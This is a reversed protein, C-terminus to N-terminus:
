ESEADIGVEGQVPSPQSRNDDEIEKRLEAVKDLAEFAERNVKEVELKFQGCMKNIMFYGDKSVCVCDIIKHQLAKWEEIKQTAVSIYTLMTIEKNLEPEKRTM